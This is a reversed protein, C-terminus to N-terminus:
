RGRGINAVLERERQEVFVRQQETLGAVVRAREAAGQPHGQSAAFGYWAAAEVLDVRIGRGREHFTAVIYQAEVVYQLAANKFWYLAQDMLVRESNGARADILKALEFQAEPVGQDAAKGYWETALGLDAPVGQGLRYLDGLGKMSRKEGATAGKTWQALATEYNARQYAALGDAYPEGTPQYPAEAPRSLVVSLVFVAGAIALVLAGITTIVSPHLWGASRREDSRREYGDRRESM